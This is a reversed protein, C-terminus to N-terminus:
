KIAHPLPESRKKSHRKSLRQPWATTDECSYIKLKAGGSSLLEQPSCDLIKAAATVGSNTSYAVGHAMTSAGCLYLNKFETHTRFGLPGAQWVGKDIGYMNGRHARVYHKNTVPTGLERLVVSRKIGPLYKELVSLMGEAIREKFQQYDRDRNGSPQGEWPSFGDYDVLTFVELQHLGHRMKSPDKLTTATVFLYEPREFLAIDVPRGEMMQDIDESTHIYYNGSDLGMSRLDCDVVLYLSLCSISYGVRELKRRMRWSMKERGILRNFTQHPDANSIINSAFLTEGNELRAGTAKKGELLIEKVGTNLRIEGGARKLARVFARAIAMGGGLPHYAGEMYHKMVAAHIAASVKSPPMGHAGSQGKLVARLLPDQVFHDILAGGSRVFWPLARARKLISRWDEDIIKTLVWFVDEIAQLLRDIGETEHPFREKLRDMYAQNGKPIDFRESGVIIHDYGNPNLEMFALDDAVGLGEYIRRLREGEGLEGIYHVGTNFRFGELTFSHMWGGPVEHQECVLVRQGSQALAVAAALGGAGSGIVITDYQKM